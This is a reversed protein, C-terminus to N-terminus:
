HSEMLRRIIGLMTRRRRITIVILTGAVLILAIALVTGIWGWVLIIQKPLKLVEMNGIDAWFSPLMLLTLTLSGAALGLSLLTAKDNSKESLDALYWEDVHDVVQNINDINQDIHELTQSISFQDFLHEAKRIAYEARSWLPARSLRQALSSLRRLQAAQAVLDPLEEDLIIDGNFMQNRVKQVTGVIQGLMEYSVSEVLQALVRIELTFEVLREIAEWYQDYRVRLTASPATAVTLEHKTWDPSPIIISTRTSLLCFEDNWSALNESMINDTISWRPKPFYFESREGEDKDQLANRKLITGEGLNALANRLHTSNRVDQLGVEVLTNKSKSKKTRKIISPSALLKDFHHIVYSDHLPLSLSATPVDLYIPKKGQINIDYAIKQIFMSAVEMALKWQVPLYHLEGNNNEGAGVWDLFAKASKEKEALLEPQDQYRERNKALWKQASPVDLSEQLNLVDQALLNLPRAQQYYPQTLRIIFFGTSSPRIFIEWRDWARQFITKFQFNNRLPESFVIQEKDLKFNPYTYQELMLSRFIGTAFGVQEPTMEMTDSLFLNQHNASRPWDIRLVRSFEQTGRITEFATQSEKRIFRKMNLVMILSTYGKASIQNHM